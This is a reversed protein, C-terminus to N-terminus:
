IKNQNQGILIKNKIFEDQLQNNNATYAEQLKNKLSLIEDEKEKIWNESAVYEDEWKKSEAKWKHTSETGYQSNYQNQINSPPHIVNQQVNSGIKTPPNNDGVYMTTPATNNGHMNREHRKLNQKYDGQFACQNCKFM